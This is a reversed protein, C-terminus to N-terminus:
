QPLLTALQDAPTNPLSTLTDRLWTWPNIRFLECTATFSSLIALARWARDLASLPDPETRAVAALFQGVESAGLERPQRTGHFLIFRRGGGAYDEAIAVGVGRAVAAARFRDLLKPSSVATATVPSPILNM